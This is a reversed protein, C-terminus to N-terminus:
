ITTRVARGCGAARPRTGGTTCTDNAFSGSLYLADAGRPGLAPAVLAARRRRSVAPVRVAVSTRPAPSTRLPDAGDRGAVLRAFRLRRREPLIRQTGVFPLLADPLSALRQDVYQHVRRAYGCQGRRVYAELVAVSIGAGRPSPRGRPVSRGVAPCGGRRRRRGAHLGGRARGGAGSRLRGTHRRM